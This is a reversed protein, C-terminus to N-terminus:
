GASFGSYRQLVSTIDASTLRGDNDYDACHRYFVKMRDEMPLKVYLRLLNTVDAAGFTTEGSEFSRYAVAEGDM